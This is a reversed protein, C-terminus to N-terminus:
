HPGYPGSTPFGTDAHEPEEAAQENADQQDENANEAATVVNNAGTLCDTNLYGLDTWLADITEDFDQRFQGQWDVLLQISPNMTFDLYGDFGAKIADLAAAVDGASGWPFNVITAGDAPMVRQPLATM